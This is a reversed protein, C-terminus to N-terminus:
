LTVASADIALIRYTDPHARRRLADEVLSPNRDLCFVKGGNPWLGTTGFAIIPM